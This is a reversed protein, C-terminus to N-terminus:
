LSQLFWMVKKSFEFTDVGVIREFDRIRDGRAYERFPPRSATHNIVEAFAKPEREALYFMMTWSVAYAEEVQKDNMFRTDDSILQMITESFGSDRPDSYKRKILALSEQNVRDALRSGSRAEAMGSPEFMQGIGESIWKPTENVRSHVNSNFGSQHATEHRVTAAISALQGGDHTMVRNCEGSYVGAVRSMNIELRKLEAYMAEQDPFVVAIMPFRGDRVHVGRKSMYDIFSSHAQEFLRPWRDGRGRPQVVLFNQTAVVDFQPGFEALLENRLETVSAVEYNEKLRTFQTESAHPDVSHMWGDRGIIVMEQAMEVLLMGKRVKGADFFQVM